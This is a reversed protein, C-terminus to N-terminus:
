APVVGSQVAHVPAHRQRSKRARLHAQGQDPRQGSPNPESGTGGHREGARAARGEPGHPPSPKRRSRRQEVAAAVGFAFIGVAAFASFVALLFFPTALFDYPASTAGPDVIHHGWMAAVVIVLCIGSMVTARVLPRRSALAPPRAPGTGAHAPPIDATLEALDARTRAVLARGTREGLEDRTLQGHVFADKLMEVVQERDAHGARLRDSGPVAPDQPGTAVPAEGALVICSFRLARTEEPGHAM